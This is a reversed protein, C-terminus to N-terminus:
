GRKCAGIIQNTLVFITVIVDGAILWKKQDLTPLFLSVVCVRLGAVVPHRALEGEIRNIFRMTMSQIRTTIAPVIAWIIVLFPSRM